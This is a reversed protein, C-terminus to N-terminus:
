YKINDITRSISYNNEKELMKFVLQKQKSQNYTITYYIINRKSEQMKLFFIFSIPPNSFKTFKITFFLVIDTYKISIVLCFALYFSLFNKIRIRKRIDYSSQKNLDGLFCLYGFYNCKWVM